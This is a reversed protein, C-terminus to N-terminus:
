SMWHSINYIKTEAAAM